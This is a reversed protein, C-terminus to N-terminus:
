EDAAVTFVAYPGTTGALHARSEDHLGDPLEESRAVNLPKGDFYKESLRRTLEDIEAQGWAPPVASVAGSFPSTTM